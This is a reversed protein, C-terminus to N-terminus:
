NLLFFDLAYWSFLVIEIAYLGMGVQRESANIRFADKLVLSILGHQLQNVGEGKEKRLIIEFDNFPCRGRHLHWLHASSLTLAIMPLRLQENWLSFIVSVAILLLAFLHFGRAFSASRLQRGPIVSGALSSATAALFISTSLQAGFFAMVIGLAAGGGVANLHLSLNGIIAASIATVIIGLVILAPSAGFIGVFLLGLSTSFIIGSIHTLVTTSKNEKVTGIKRTASATPNSGVLGLLTM